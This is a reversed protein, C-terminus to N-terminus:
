AAEEAPATMPKRAFGGMTLRIKEDLSLDPQEEAGGFISKLLECRGKYAEIIEAPTASWTAEPTWGLWGTGIRYLKAHHDAFTVRPGPEPASAEGMNDPDFGSLACVHALLPAALAPLTRSFPKTELADAFRAFDSHPASERVIAIIASVSAENIAAILKDFGGFQRELRLAARLTPRLRIAEHGFGITIEDDALRM